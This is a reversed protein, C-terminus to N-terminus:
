EIEKSTNIENLIENKIEERLLAKKREKKKKKFVFLSRIILFIIIVLLISYVYFPLTYDPIPVVRLWILFIPIIWCLEELLVWIIYILLITKFIKNYKKIFAPIIIFPWYLGLSGILIFLNWFSDGISYSNAGILRRAKIIRRFFYKKANFNRTHFSIRFSAISIGLLILGWIRIFLTHLGEGLDITSYLNFYDDSYGFLHFLHYFINPIPDFIIPAAISYYIVLWIISSYLFVILSWTIIGIGFLCIFLDMLFEKGINEDYGEDKYKFYDYIVFLLFGISSIIWSFPFFDYLKIFLHEYLYIITGNFINELNKVSLFFFLWCLINLALIGLTVTFFKILIRLLM